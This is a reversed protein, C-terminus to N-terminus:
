NAIQRERHVSVDFNKPEDRLDYPLLDIRHLGDINPAEIAARRSRGNLHVLAISDAHDELVMQGLWGRKMPVAEFVRDWVVSHRADALRRDLGTAAKDIFEVDMLLAGVEVVRVHCHLLHRAHEATEDHVGLLRIARMAVLVEQNM